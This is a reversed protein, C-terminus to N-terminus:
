EILNLMSKPQVPEQTNESLYVRLFISMTILVAMLIMSVFLILWVSRTYHHERPHVPHTEIVRTFNLPEHKTTEGSTDVIAVELELSTNTKQKIQKM